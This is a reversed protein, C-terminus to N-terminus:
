AIQKMKMKLVTWSEMVFLQIQFVFDQIPANFNQVAQVIFKKLYM